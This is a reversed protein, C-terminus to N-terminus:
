AHRTRVNVDAVAVSEALRAKYQVIKQRLAPDATALIQAALVAANVPGAKGVAVTAVPVGSPMQVNSLLSDLGGLSNTQIPVGIVPLPTLSALVGALHAAGGAAAIIVGLGRDAAAKAYDHAADPTRHASIVRVEYPLGFEELTAMCPHMTELDSDSGLVIGVRPAAAKPTSV